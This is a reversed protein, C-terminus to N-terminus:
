IIKVVPKSFTDTDFWDIKVKDGCHVKGPTYDIINTVIRVGEDLDVLAVVYPVKDALSPHFPKDMVIYSYITGSDPLTVMDYEESLCDPCIYSAPWRVKGCQRCKQFRLEHNKCGEWFEKNDYNIRPEFFKM